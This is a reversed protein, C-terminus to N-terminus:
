EKGASISFGGPLSVSAASEKVVFGTNPDLFLARVIEALLADAVQPTSASALLLPYTDLANRKSENVVQLHSNVSFYRLSFRLAYLVIGALFTRPAAHVLVSLVPNPDTLDAPQISGLVDSGAGAALGILVLVSAVAGAGGIYSKIRHAEAQTKYHGSSTSASVSTGKAQAASLLAEAQAVIEKARQADAEMTKRTQEVLPATSMAAAPTAWQKIADVARDIDAVIGNRRGTADAATPDFGAMASRQVLLGDLASEIQSRSPDSIYQSNADALAVLNRGFRINEVAQEFNLHTGLEERRALGDLNGDTLEALKAEWM